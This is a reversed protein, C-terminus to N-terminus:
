LFAAGAPDTRDMSAPWVSRCSIHEAVIDLWNAYLKVASNMWVQQFTARGALARLAPMVDHGELAQLRLIRFEAEESSQLYSIPVAPCTSNDGKIYRRMDRLYEQLLTGAQYEPHGQFYFSGPNDEHAFIDVGVDDGHSVITYGNAELANRSLGNYRSHPCRWSGPLGNTLNHAPGANRCNFIGSLKAGLPQRTIGDRHLVAAHAALCSWIAPLSAREVWNHLRIFNQWLWEDQLNFTTVEMGTVIIADLPFGVIADIPLHDKIEDKPARMTFCVLETAYGTANLLNSFQMKASAMSSIGMNNVLGIVLPRIAANM